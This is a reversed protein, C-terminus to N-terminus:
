WFFTQLVVNHQQPVDRFLCNCCWQQAAQVRRNGERLHQTPARGAARDLLLAIEWLTLPPSM